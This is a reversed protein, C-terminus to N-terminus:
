RGNRRRRMLEARVRFVWDLMPSDPVDKEDKAADLAARTRLYARSEIVDFVLEDNAEMEAVAQSPLCHFEECV